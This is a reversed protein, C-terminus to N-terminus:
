ERPLLSRVMSTLQLFSLEILGEPSKKVQEVLERVADASMEELMPNVRNVIFLYDKYAKGLEDATLKDLLKDTLHPDYKGPESTSAQVLTAKSLMSAYNQDHQEWEELDMFRKKVDSTVQNTESISLPRMHFYRGCIRVRERTEVGFKMAELDPKEM